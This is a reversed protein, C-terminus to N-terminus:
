DNALRAESVRGTSDLKILLVEIDAGLGRERGVLYQMDYSDFNTSGAPGLLAEVEARLLGMLKGSSILDDVMAQRVSDKSTTVPSAIWVSSQFPVPKVRDSWMLYRLVLPPGVLLVCAFVALVGMSIWFRAWISTGKEVEPLNENVPGM